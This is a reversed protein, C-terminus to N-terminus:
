SVDRFRIQKFVKDRGYQFKYLTYIFILKKSIYDIM